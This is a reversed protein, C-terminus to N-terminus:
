IELRYILFRENENIHYLGPVRVEQLQKFSTNRELYHIYVTSPYYLILDIRRPYKKVSDLINNIVKMFIQVSFPNFFYFVNDTEKVSYKEALCWELQIAGKKKAHKLYNKKNRLTKNYLHENMEIGTVSSGFLHHVYFLLRGKGSGFDVFGDTRQLKYEEFLTHIITYPTAEYHHYHPSEEIYIGTNSTKIYLLNDYNKHMISGKRTLRKNILYNSRLRLERYNFYQVLGQFM